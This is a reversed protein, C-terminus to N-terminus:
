GDQLLFNKEHIKEHLDNGHYCIVMWCEVNGGRGLAHGDLECLINMHQASLSGVMYSHTDPRHGTSTRYNTLLTFNKMAQPLFHM